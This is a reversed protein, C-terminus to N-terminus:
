LLLTLGVNLFQLCKRVLDAPDDLILFPKLPKSGLLGICLIDKKDSSPDIIGDAKLAAKLHLLDALDMRLCICSTLQLMAGNGQDLVASKHDTDQCLRLKILFCDAVHHLASATPRIQHPKSRKSIIIDLISSIKRNIDRFCIRM